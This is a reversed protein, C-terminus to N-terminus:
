FGASYLRRTKKTKLWAFAVASLFFRSVMSIAVQTFLSELRPKDPLTDFIYRIPNDKQYLGL